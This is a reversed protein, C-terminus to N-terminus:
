MLKCSLLMPMYPSGCPMHQDNARSKKWCILGSTTFGWVAQLGYEKEAYEGCLWHNMWPSQLRRCYRIVKPDQEKKIDQGLPVGLQVRLEEIERQLKDQVEYETSCPWRCFHKDSKNGHWVIHQRLGCSRWLEAYVSNLVERPLRTLFASQSQPNISM